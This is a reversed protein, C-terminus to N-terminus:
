SRHGAEGFSWRPSDILGRIQRGRFNLASFLRLEFNLQKTILM